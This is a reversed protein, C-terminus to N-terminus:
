PRPNEKNFKMKKPRVWQGTQQDTQGRLESSVAQTEQTETTKMTSPMPKLTYIEQRGGVPHITQPLPMTFFRRPCNVSCILPIKLFGLAPPLLRPFDSTPFRFCSIMGAEKQINVKKKEKEGPSQSIHCASYHGGGM